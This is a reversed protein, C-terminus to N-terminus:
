KMEIKDITLGNETRTFYAVGRQREGSLGAAIGLPSLTWDWSFDVKLGDSLQTTADVQEFNRCGLVLTWKYAVMGSAYTGVREQKIISTGVAVLGKDTLSWWYTDTSIQKSTPHKEDGIYGVTDLLKLADYNAGSSGNQCYVDPLNCNGADASSPRISELERISCVAFEKHKSILEQVLASEKSKEGNLRERQAVAEQQAQAEASSVPVVRVAEGACRIGVSNYTSDPVGGIRSSVRVMIPYDGWSGGRLVRADGSSPGTPDQTLSNQYYNNDDWDNVWQSVNGLMDYLGLGNGRKQAVAHMGNGDDKLRQVHDVVGEHQIRTTDVRERGSNDRYWAIEDLSGYRAERSGGRAAYEWEAETPLRGSIWGCYAQSDDWSVNVVSNTLEDNPFPPPPPMQGGTAGAFRRYAGVTVTTQGIWFGKTVTVQHPPKEDDRCGNDGPSCGMMFTGPSIWVYKLGDKPNVRTSEAAPGNNEITARTETMRRRQIEIYPGLWFHWTPALIVTLGLLGFLVYKAQSPRQPALKAGEGVPHTAEVEKGVLREHHAKAKALREAEAKDGAKREQEVQGGHQSEVVKTKPLSEPPAPNSAARTFERAFELASTFRQDRDKTLAKMVVSEIRPPVILGPEVARFPPPEEMLHKRLYGVPTDSHFPTRGILMEYVVVGLSYIDSRADLEDSRMGSAQEYSMYAPTGLVTGTMTHTASERLKAIGFDVVKVILEGGDGHTLFLNDPKLDRHIIGLKHAANLGGAAQQLIEAVEPLPLAGRQKIVERLSEGELFEMAIYPTGDDGQASEYITVVNPHHIRGTSGAENQFRRLFDHDDLLKRNLVKLAVPRNGVGIQEALFVTGMGGKGLRRILHFRRSLGAALQTETETAHAALPAGDHPCFEVDDSYTHQCTRCTKM